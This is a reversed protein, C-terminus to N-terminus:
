HMSTYASQLVYRAYRFDRIKFIKQDRWEILVFYSPSSEGDTFVLIVDRGEISGHTLRWNFFKSYNSFYNGVDAKGHRQARAVLDLRVETSLM